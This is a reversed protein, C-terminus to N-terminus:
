IVQKIHVKHRYKNPDNNWLIIFVDDGITEVDGQKSLVVFGKKNPAIVTDFKKISLKSCCSQVNRIILESQGQNYIAFKADGRKNKFMLTDSECAIIPALEKQENSYMSFEDIVEVSIPIKIKETRAGRRIRLVVDGEKHGWFPVTSGSVSVLLRSNDGQTLDEKTVECKLWDSYSEIDLYISDRMINIMKVEGKVVGSKKELTSLELSQKDSKLDGIFFRFSDNVQHNVRIRGSVALHIPENQTNTYVSIKKSFYGSFRAPDFTVKVYGKAGPPVPKREYLTATCGCTAKVRTVVIPTNGVNTFEFRYTQKGKSKSFTGFYHSLENFKLSSHEQALTATHLLIGVLFVLCKMRELRM